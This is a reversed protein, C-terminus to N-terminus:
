WSAHYNYEDCDDTDILKKFAEMTEKISNLYHESYAVGGFFFGAQTPLLREPVSSDNCIKIMGMIKEEQGGTWRTGTQVNTDTFGAKDMAESVKECIDYLEKIKDIDMHYTGCDDVDNQVNTVFWSHFHNAKRWYMAEEEIYSIESIKITPHPKGNQTVTIVVKKEEPTHEWQKVYTKKSLYMDLGM